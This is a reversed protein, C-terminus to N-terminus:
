PAILKAAHRLGTIYATHWEESHEATKSFVKDTIAGREAAAIEDDLKERATRYDAEIETEERLHSRSIQEQAEDLDYQANELELELSDICDKLYDIEDRLRSELQYCALHPDPM